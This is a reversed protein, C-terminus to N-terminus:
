SRGRQRNGEKEQQNFLVKPVFLLHRKLIGGFSSDWTNVANNFKNSGFYYQWKVM